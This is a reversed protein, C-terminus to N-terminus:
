KTQLLRCLLQGRFNLRYSYSFVFFLRGSLLGFAGGQNLVRTVHLVNGIVPVSQGLGMYEQIWLKTLQDLGAVTLM